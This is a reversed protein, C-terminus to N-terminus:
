NKMPNETMDMSSIMTQANKEESNQNEFRNKKATLCYKEITNKKLIM